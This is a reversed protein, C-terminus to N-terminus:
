TLSISGPFLSAVKEINVIPTVPDNTNGIFLVPFRTKNQIPLQNPSQMIKAGERGYGDICSIIVGPTHGDWSLNQDSAGDDGLVLGSAILLSTGNGNELDVLLQKLDGCKALTPKTVTPDDIVPLPRQQLNAIVRDFREAIQKTSNTFFSCLKPGAQYCHEFFMGVAEDAFLLNTSWAGSYYDDPNDVGDLIMRGTSEPFLSAVTAGLFTGYGTGNLSGIAQNCWQGLAEAMYFQGTVSSSSGDSVTRYYESNFNNRTVPQGPFCELSPGSNNVGRPDFAVLNVNEGYMGSGGPGGFNLLDQASQNQSAYKLFAISTTGVSSNSYDLPVELLACTFNDVCPAWDVNVSPTLGSFNYVMTSSDNLNSVSSAACIISAYLTLLAAYYKSISAVM